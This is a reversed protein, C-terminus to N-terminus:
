LQFRKSTYDSLPRWLFCNCIVVFLAMVCVGLTVKHFDAKATMEAIYSGLGLIVLKNEGFSVYEAVISANWAAGSATIVGTIFYPITAPIIIRSWLLYGRVKLNQAVERLDNSIAATGSIINFLIYWQSGVIILPSLWINPNLKYRIILTVILPFLINVPFSSLFQAIPQIVNSLRPNLGILIGIPVWILSAIILMSFIRILTIFALYLVHKLEIIGVNNNIFNYSYIAVAFGILALILYWIRNDQKDINRKYAIDSDQNSCIFKVFIKYLPTFIVTILSLLMAYPKKIFLNKSFLSTIWSNYKNNNTTMEYRFKSAWVVLPSLVLQNYTIILLSMTLIAYLIAQINEQAIALSIYSGIGPLTITNNGVTIVESAVVYFWSSSMSLAINWVLSPIGFPVEVQWFKQWSNMKFVISAEKLEIPVTKLSRYLSFIMNWVQSTFIAFIAALEAGMINNPFLTLFATVTFSLYGLIPISQLIDLVPILIQEAKRNKAALCAIPFTVVLSLIMAIFIRLMTRLSYKFLNTMTLSTSELELQVLPATMQKIGWSLFILCSAVIMFALINLLITSSAGVLHQKAPKDSISHHYKM